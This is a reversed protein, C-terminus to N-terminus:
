FRAASHLSLIEWHASWHYEQPHAALGAKVPNYAIYYIVRFLQADTRILTSSYRRGFVTDERKHRRNFYRAYNTHLHHMIKSIHTEGLQLLLHYHNDMIVYYLVSFDYLTVIKLLMALFVRKDLSNRFIYSKNIGRQTVHLIAGNYSIRPKRM